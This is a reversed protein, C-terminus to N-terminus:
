AAPLPIERTNTFVYIWWGTDNGTNGLERTSRNVVRYQVNHLQTKHLIIDNHQKKNVQFTGFLIGSDLARVWLLRRSKVYLVTQMHPSAM